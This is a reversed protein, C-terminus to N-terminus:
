PLLMSIFHREMYHQLVSLFGPCDQLASQVLLRFGSEEHYLIERLHSILFIMPMVIEVSDKDAANHLVKSKNMEMTVCTLLRELEKKNRLVTDGVKVTCSNLEQIGGQLTSAIGSVRELLNKLLKSADQKLSDGTEDDDCLFQLIELVNPHNSLIVSCVEPEDVLKSMLQISVVKEETLGTALLNFTAALIESDAFAARNVKHHTLGTIGVALELASYKVVSNGLKLIVNHDDSVAANRFCLRLLRIEEDSLRLFPYYLPGTFQHLIALFSKSEWRVQISYSFCFPTVVEPINNQILAEHCKEEQAINWLISLISKSLTVLSQM